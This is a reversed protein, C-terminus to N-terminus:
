KGDYHPFQDYDSFSNRKRAVTRRNDDQEDNTTDKIPNDTSPSFLSNFNLRTRPDFQKEEKQNLNEDKTTQMNEETAPKM